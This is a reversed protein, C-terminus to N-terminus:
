RISGFDAMDKWLDDFERQFYHLMKGSESILINEHNYREASRTWNYSGTLTVKRDFIAFKHHMHNDTMDVKVDIGADAIKFIDSGKDFVKDNDTLIRLNVGRRHASILEDSIRNDSITFLCVDIHNVSGKIQYLIANLCDEGPSFYIREDNEEAKSVSIIVKNINETWALVAGYNTSNIKENAMKFLESRLVNSLNQDPNLRQLKSKLEKKESKSLFNDDLSNEIIEIIEDRLRM